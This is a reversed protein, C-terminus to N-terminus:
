ADDNLGGRFSRHGPLEQLSVVGKGAGAHRRSFDSNIEDAREQLREVPRANDFAGQSSYYVIREAAAQVPAQMAIMTETKLDSGDECKVVEYGFAKRERLRLRNEGADNHDDKLRVWHTDYPRGQPDRKVLSKGSIPDEIAFPDPLRKPSIIRSEVPIRGRDQTKHSARADVRQAKEAEAKKREEQLMQTSLLHAMASADEPDPDPYDPPPPAPEPETLGQLDNAMQHALLNVDLVAERAQRATEIGAPVVPRSAVAARPKRTTKAM